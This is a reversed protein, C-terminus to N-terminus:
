VMWATTVKGVEVCGLLEDQTSDPLRVFSSHFIAYAEADLSELGMVYIPFLRNLDREFQRLLYDGVGAEWGSPEQDAPIIRNVLAQLLEIHSPSFVFIGEKTQSKSFM